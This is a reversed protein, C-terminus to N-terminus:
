CHNCKITYLSIRTYKSIINIIMLVLLLILKSLLGIKMNVWYNNVFKKYICIRRNIM